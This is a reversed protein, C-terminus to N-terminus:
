ARPKEASAIAAPVLQDIRRISPFVRAWIAVVLITGFGGLVVAPVAGFWHATLGSEFQGVENSAGIFITNVASVRGRMHDPTGLQLLTHRVIVSVTDAAGALMLAVVSVVVSKSLGFVITFVGFAFVCWLMVMGARRRIPWHAIALGMVVAGLAPASRLVGLGYAGVKLIEKAYVPLLAVAGGLLVAFLDLSTSGLIVKNRWIYKVGELVMSISAAPRPRDAQRVRVISMLSFATLYAVASGFYVPVPTSALGYILGGVAPGLIAAAQFASSGWAVANPFDEPPVLTPLFSQSAPANFARITGNFLLVGYIPWPSSVGHLTLVLLLLSCVAFAGYCTQLIRKRELHDAAHGAVLFLMAGPLFQALGVLGLDLPRNTLAYIQWAVAVSQMESSLTVLFRASLFNRYSPYRLASRGRSRQPQNVADPL